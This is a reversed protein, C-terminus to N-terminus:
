RYQLVFYGIEDIFVLSYYYSDGNLLKFNKIYKKSEECSFLVYERWTQQKKRTVSWNDYTCEYNNDFVDGGLIAYNRECLYDLFKVAYEEKWIVDNLNYDYLPIANQQLELPFEAFEVNGIRM